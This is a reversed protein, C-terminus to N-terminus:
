QCFTNEFCETFGFPKVFSAVRAFKLGHFVLWFSAAFIPAVFAVGSEPAQNEHRNCIVRGVRLVPASNMSDSNISFLRALLLQQLKRLISITIM